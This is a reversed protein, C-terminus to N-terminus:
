KSKTNIWESKLMSYVIHDEFKGNLFGNERLVGEKKFNLRKPIGQSIYNEAACRISVRNLNMEKLCRDTLAKCSETMIGKGTFSEALWYGIETNKNLHDIYLLGLIGAIREQYKIVLEFGNKKNNRSVSTKVFEATDNINRTSDVWPLWERLYKRNTNTLDFLEKIHSEELLELRLDENISIIM